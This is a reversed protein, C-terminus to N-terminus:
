PEDQNKMESLAISILHDIALAVAIESAWEDSGVMHTNM